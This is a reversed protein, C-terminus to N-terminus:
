SYPSGGIVINYENKLAQKYEVKDFLSDLLYTNFMTVSDSVEVGKSLEEETYKSFLYENSFSFLSSYYFLLFIFRSLKM